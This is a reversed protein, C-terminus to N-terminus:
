SKQRWLRVESRIGERFTRPSFGFDGEADEHGFNKNEAIRRVQELKLPARGLSNWVALAGVIPAMPVALILLRRRLAATVEGVLAALPLAENGSLDCLRVLCVISRAGPTGHIMPPRLITRDLNSERELQEGRERVGGLLAGLLGVLPVGVISGM